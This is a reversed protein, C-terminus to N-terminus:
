ELFVTLKGSLCQSRSLNRNEEELAYLNMAREIILRLIDIDVPKPYFDYAGAAIAKLANEREENGSAIIVKTEPKFSLVADLTALGESAGNPDPPLGLDLVIVNPEEKRLTTLASERDEAIFVDMDSLAWRMQSRLGPDDEVILLKRSPEM